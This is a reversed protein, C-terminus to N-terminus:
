TSGIRRRMVSRRPSYPANISGLPRLWHCGTAFRFVGSVASDLWFRQWRNRGTAAPGQHYPPPRRNSDTLPSQLLRAFRPKEQQLLKCFSCYATPISSKISSEPGFSRESRRANRVRLRRTSSAANVGILRQAMPSCFGCASRLWMRLSLNLWPQVGHPGRRDGGTSAPPRLCCM